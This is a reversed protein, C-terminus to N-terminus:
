TAPLARGCISERLVVCFTDHLACLSCKVQCAYSIVSESPCVAIHATGQAVRQAPTTKYSDSHPSSFTVDLGLSSYYGRAFAVLFGVHNINPTWDLAVNFSTEKTM